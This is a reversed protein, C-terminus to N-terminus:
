KASEAGPSSAFGGKEAQHSHKDAQKKSEKASAAKKASASAATSAHTAGGKEAMHNHSPMAEDAATAVGFSGALVAAFMAIVLKSKM